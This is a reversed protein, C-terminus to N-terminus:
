IRSHRDFLKEWAGAVVRIDYNKLAERRGEEGLKTLLDTKCSVDTLFGAVASPRAHLFIRNEEKRIISDPIMLDRYPVLEGPGQIPQTAVPIGCAMAEIVPICYGEWESLNIYLNMTGYLARMRSEPLDDAIIKVAESVHHKQAHARLDTGDLSVVRDTKILLYGDPRNKYFGSFSEIMNKFSKRSTNAGVTGIVFRNTLGLASKEKKRDTECLPYYCSTDVGHPIVPCTNKYGSIALFSSTKETLPVPILRGLSGEAAPRSLQAWLFFPIDPAAYGEKPDPSVNNSVGNLFPFQGAYGLLVATHAGTERILVGIDQYPRGFYDKLSSSRRSGAQSSIPGALLAKIGRREFASALLSLQRTFSTKKELELGSILLVTRKKM